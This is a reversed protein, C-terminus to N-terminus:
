TRVSPPLPTLSTALLAFSLVSLNRSFAFLPPPPGFDGINQLRLLHIGGKREGKRAGKRIMERTVFEGSLSPQMTRTGRSTVYSADRVPAFPVMFFSCGCCAVDRGDKPLYGIRRTDALLIVHRCCIDTIHDVKNIM